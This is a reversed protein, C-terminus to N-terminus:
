LNEAPILGNEELIRQGEQYNKFKFIFIAKDKINKSATYFYEVLVGNKEFLEMLRAFSGPFNGIEVVSVEAVRTTFGANNLITLAEDCKSVILRLICMNATETFSIAKIDIGQRALTEALESLRTTSDELFVSIQKIKMSIGNYVM